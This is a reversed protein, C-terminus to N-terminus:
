KKSVKNQLESLYEEDSADLIDYEEDTMFGDDSEEAWADDEACDEYEDENDRNSLALTDTETTETTETTELEAEPETKHVYMSAAPSEHDLKPIIMQSKGMDPVKSDLIAAEKVKPAAQVKVECWLKHGFKVGDSTTLRWHSIFTGEHDPTRMLVTFPFEQGPQLQNYCVTSESASVLEHLGAPHTPDVAGMWDGGVFKVKCGAPWAARGENKLVWTQEFTHNPPMVTGDLVTDHKFIAILDPTPVEVTPKLVEKEVEPEAETTDAPQQPEPKVDVVTQVSNVAITDRLSPVSETETSRHSTRQRPSRDGMAPLVQGDVHEGTTTVSVHRVPTRFKILPHTKNHTNAPSAECNECFDTDHCVACKYREGVIYKPGSRKSTSTCLPGDCCIGTHVSRNISRFTRDIIPEYVAVFRHNPHIFSANQVCESCYDWDPCDLCKHRVGRVYKDCGDCIANHVVNRGPSLRASISQELVTDKAAPTFGHKPHHGHIDKAFCLKCLDYDDCETCHLFEQEPFEQVCCNCTRAQYVTNWTPQASQTPVIRFNEFAPRFPLNLQPQPQPPSQVPATKQSNLTSRSTKPAVHTTSYTIEGDKITRKILWHNDDYCAIGQSVCDQCLDFDDDDCTSCHFHADPVARDCSNCCVTLPRRMRGSLAACRPSEVKEQVPTPAAVSKEKKGLEMNHAQRILESFSLKSATQSFRYQPRDAPLRNDSSDLPALTVMPEAPSAAGLFDIVEEGEGNRRLHIRPM